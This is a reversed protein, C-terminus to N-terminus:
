KEPSIKRTRRPKVPSTASVDPQANPETASHSQQAAAAVNADKVAKSIFSIGYTEEYAQQFENSERFKFFLPWQHYALEHVLEGKKGIERMLEAAEAYQNKLVATALRFDRYSATWDFSDILRIAAQEKESFKLGIAANVIRIRLSIESLGKRMVDTLAFESFEAATNWRKDVLLDYITHNAVENAKEVELPFTKRWLTQTLMFAVKSVVIIARSFYKGDHDVLDGINPRKEFKFDERDCILLYQESVRGGNHVLINRRQALEVFEGWEKFDRLTKIGFKRELTAFQDVYSERRITDVEKELMNVKVAELNGFDLLERFTIERSIGKLLDTNKNYMAKLLSGIFSDFECFIQNFLSRELATLMARGGLGDLERITALLESVEHANKPAFHAPNDGAEKRLYKDITKSRKEHEKRLWNSTHPLVEWFTRRIANLGDLVEKLVIELPHDEAMKVIALEGGPSAGNPIATLATGTNSEGM